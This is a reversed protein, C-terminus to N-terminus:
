FLLRKRIIRTTIIHTYGMCRKIKVVFTSSKEFHLYIYNRLCTAKTVFFTYYNFDKKGLSFNFIYM